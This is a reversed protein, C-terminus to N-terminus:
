VTGEKIYVNWNTGGPNYNVKYATAYGFYCENQHPFVLHFTQCEVYFESCCDGLTGVNKSATKTENM